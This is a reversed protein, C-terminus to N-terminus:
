CNTYLCEYKYSNGAGQMLNRKSSAWIMKFRKDSINNYSSFYVQFPADAVWDYFQKHNFFSNNNYQATNEYPPDCYVIDGMKYKYNLYTDNSLALRELQELQQCKDLTALRELQQLRALRESKSKNNLKKEYAQIYRRLLVRRAKIDDTKIYKDIDDFYYKIFDDKIGFVVFNHISKKQQEIDKGFLYATGGNSFSWIYKIYGDKEKQEFFKERSIWEPKFNKYNYDGNIAKKILTVLLPNIENYFVSDYKRSYLACESMAFGGGFLDCFRKGRPLINILTEAIGDKSGQYPIGYKAM